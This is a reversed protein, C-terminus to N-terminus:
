ETAHLPTSDEVSESEIARIARRPRIASQVQERLVDLEAERGEHERLGIAVEISKLMANGTPATIDGARLSDFVHQVAAQKGSVTALDYREAATDHKAARALGGRRGNARSRARHEPRHYQCVDLTPVAELTCPNGDKRTATCQNNVSATPQESM